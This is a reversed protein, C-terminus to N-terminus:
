PAFYMTQFHSVNRLIISGTSGASAFLVRIEYGLTGLNSNRIAYRRDQNFAKTSKRLGERTIALFIEKFDAVLAERYM